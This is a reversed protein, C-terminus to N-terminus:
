HIRKPYTNKSPKNDGQIEHEEIKFKLSASKYIPEYGACSFLFIIFFIPFIFKLKKKM